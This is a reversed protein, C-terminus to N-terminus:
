YETELFLIFTKNQAWAKLTIHTHIYIYIYIYIYFLCGGGCVTMVYSGKFMCRITIIDIQQYNM